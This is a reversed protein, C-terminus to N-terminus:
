IIVALLAQVSGPSFPSLWRDSLHGIAITQWFQVIGIENRKKEGKGQKNVTLTKTNFRLACRSSVNDIAYSLLM